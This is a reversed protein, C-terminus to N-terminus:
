LIGLARSRAVAETRSRVSLKSYVNSTHAKVTGLSICLQQGIERNTLGEAILALVETERESLPEILEEAPGLPKPELDARVTDSEAVQFEFAALLRGAYDPMIHHAAAQHLLCAMPVGEEVFTRVYGAPAALTLAEGLPMLAGEPDGSAKLALARLAQIQIQENVWGASEAAELLRALLVLANDLDRGTPDTSGQAILVRALLIHHLDHQYSLADDISLGREQVWALAAALNGTSLWLRLRCEDIWTAIWPDIKVRQAIQDAKRLSDRVGQMDGQARQLRARAVYAEGMIDAQGLQQCLEVGRAVDHNAAELDNWERYLDGLKILPFSAVPMLRGGPGTAWQLAERYTALAGHLQGRKFQQEGVYCSAPVAM